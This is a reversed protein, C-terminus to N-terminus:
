TFRTPRQSAECVSRGSRGQAKPTISVSVMLAKAIGPPVTMTECPSTFRRVLSDSSAPTRPWSIACTSFFCWSEAIWDSAPQLAAAVPAFATAASRM